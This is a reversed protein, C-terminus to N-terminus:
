REIEGLASRALDRDQTDFMRSRRAVSRRSAITLVGIAKAGVRYYVLRCRVIM